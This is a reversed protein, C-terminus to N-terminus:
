QKIVSVKEMRMHETVGFKKLFDDARKEWHEKNKKAPSGFHEHWFKTHFRLNVLIRMAEEFSAALQEETQISIKAM